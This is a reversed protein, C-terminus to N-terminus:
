GAAARRTKPKEVARSSFEGHDAAGEHACDTRQPDKGKQEYASLRIASPKSCRLPNGLIMQEWAM